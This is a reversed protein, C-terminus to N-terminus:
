VAEVQQLGKMNAPHPLVAMGLILAKSTNSYTVQVYKFRPTIMANYQDKETLIRTCIYMHGIRIVDGTKNLCGDKIGDWHLDVDVIDSGHITNLDQIVQRKLDEETLDTFEVGDAEYGLGCKDKGKKEMSTDFKRLTEGRMLWTFEFGHICFLGDHMNMFYSKGNHSFV